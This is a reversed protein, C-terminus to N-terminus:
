EVDETKFLQKGKRVHLPYNHHINKSTVKQPTKQMTQQISKMDPFSRHMYCLPIVNHANCSDFVQATFPISIFHNSKIQKQLVTIEINDNDLM